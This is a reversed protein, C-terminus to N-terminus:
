DGPLRRAHKTSGERKMSKLLEKTRKKKREQLEWRAPNIEGKISWWRDGTWMGLTRSGDQLWVHVAKYKKQSKMRNCVFFKHFTLPSLPFDIYFSLPAIEEM